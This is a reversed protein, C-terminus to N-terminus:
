EHRFEKKWNRIRNGANARINGAFFWVDNMHFIGAGMFGNADWVSRSPLDVILVGRAPDVRAGFMRSKEVAKGTRYDYFYAQIHLERGAPKSDTRWNLPNICYAGNGAMFSADAEKNQTNWVTIVGVDGANQAPKIRGGFDKEMQAASIHPLGALYAAAFGKEKRLEPCHEMLYYLDMAGQSHGLLIYPRGKNYHRLYYRFADIVEKMGREFHKWEAKTLPRKKMIGLVSAYTLQHVYPSFVRVNKGFIGYTQATAFGTIKKQLKPNDKWEMEPTKAKGALTPYVYFVDFEADSKETECIVWNGPNSYFSQGGDSICGTLVTILAALLILCRM